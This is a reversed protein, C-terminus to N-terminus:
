LRPGSAESPVDEVRFGRVVNRVQDINCVVSTEGGVLTLISQTVLLVITSRMTTIGPNIGIFM